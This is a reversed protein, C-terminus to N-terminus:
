GNERNSWHSGFALIFLSRSILIGVSIAAGMVAIFIPVLPTGLLWARVSAGILAALAAAVPVRWLQNWASATTPSYLRLVAAAIIWAALFPFLTYPLRAFLSPDTQHFRIGLLTVLFIVIADDVLLFFQPLKM